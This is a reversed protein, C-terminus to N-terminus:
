ERRQGLVISDVAQAVATVAVAERGANRVLVVLNGRAFLAVTETGFAVDGFKADAHRRMTSSEFEGLADILYEHAANVSACVFVDIRIVVDKAEGRWFSTHRNERQEARDLSWGRLETGRFAPAEVRQEKALASRGSWESFRHREKLWERKSTNAM